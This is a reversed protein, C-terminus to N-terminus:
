GVEELRVRVCEPTGHTLVPYSEVTIYDGRSIEGDGDVDVHVSVNYDAGQVPPAGYLAFDLSKEAGARHSVDKLVQEAIPTAGADARSVDELRVYVTVGDFERVEPGLTISGIVLPKEESM